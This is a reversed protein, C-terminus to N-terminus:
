TKRVRGDKRDFFMVRTRQFLYSVLIVYDSVICLGHYDSCTDNEEPFHRGWTCTGDWSFLAITDSFIAVSREDTATAHACYSYDLFLINGDRSLTPNDAICRCANLILDDHHDDNVHAIFLNEDYAAVSFEYNVLSSNMRWTRQGITITTQSQHETKVAPSRPIPNQETYDRILQGSTPRYEARRLIPPFSNDSRSIFISGFAMYATYVERSSRQHLALVSQIMNAAETSISTRTLIKPHFTSASPGHFYYVYMCALSFFTGERNLSSIWRSYLVVVLKPEPSPPYNWHARTRARLLPLITIQHTASVVDECAWLAM